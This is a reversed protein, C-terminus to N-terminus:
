KKKQSLLVRGQEALDYIKRRHSEDAANKNIQRDLYGPDTALRILDVGDKVVKNDTAGHKSGPARLGDSEGADEKSKLFPKLAKRKADMVMKSDRKATNIAVPFGCAKSAAAYLEEDDWEVIQDYRLGKKLCWDYVKGIGDKFKKYEPHREGLYGPFKPDLIKRLNTEKIAIEANFKAM